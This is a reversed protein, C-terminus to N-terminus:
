CKMNSFQESGLGGNSSRDTFNLEDSELAELIFLKRPILQAIRCPLQLEPVNRVRVLAIIIEGSYGADIIGINNALMYGTKSISSRGVVEFYYGYPPEVKIGTTYYILGEEEKLKKIITLDYGTDSMRSKSPTIAESSSKVFYFKPILSHKNMSKVMKMFTEFKSPSCLQTYEGKETSYLKGLFDLANVGTYSISGDNRVFPIKTRTTIEHSICSKMKLEVTPVGNQDFFLFEEERSGEIYGRIFDNILTDPLDPIHLSDMGDNETKCFISCLELYDKRGLTINFGMEFDSVIYCSSSIKKLVEHEYGWCFIKINHKIETDLSNAIWGLLYAKESTDIPLM